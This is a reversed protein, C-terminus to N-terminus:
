AYGGGLDVRLFQVCWFLDEAETATMGDHIAMFSIRKTSYTDPNGSTNDRSAMFYVNGNPITNGAQNVLSFDANWFAIASNAQYLDFRINTTRQSTYFAPTDAIGTTLLSAVDWCSAFVGIASPDWSTLEFYRGLADTHVGIDQESNVGQTSGSYEYVSMGASSTDLLWQTAPNFGTNFYKTTGNGVIGNATLDAAVFNANVFPSNGNGTQYILPYRMALLSDPIVPNVVLLKDTLGYMTLRDCFDCIAQITQTSPMPQYDNALRTLWDTVIPHACIGGAPWDCMLYLQVMDQLGPPIKQFDKASQMLTSPDTSGGAAVALLYTKVADLVGPPICSFCKALEVLSAPECTMGGSGIQTFQYALVNDQFGPPICDFCASDRILQNVDCSM